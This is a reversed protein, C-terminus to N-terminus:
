EFSHGFLLATEQIAELVFVDPETLDWFPLRAIDGQFTGEKFLSAVRKQMRGVEVESYGALDDM